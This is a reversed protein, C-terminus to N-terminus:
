VFSNKPKLTFNIKNNLTRNIVFDKLYNSTHFTVGLKAYIILNNKFFIIILSIEYNNNRNNLWLVPLNIFMCANRKLIMIVYSYCVYM